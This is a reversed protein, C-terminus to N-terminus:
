HQWQKNYHKNDHDDYRCCCFPLINVVVCYIRIRATTFCHDSDHNDHNNPHYYTLTVLTMTTTMNKQEWQVAVILLWHVALILLFWCVDVILSCCYEVVLSCCRDSIMFLLRCVFLLLWYSVFLFLCVFITLLVICLCSHVFGCYVYLFSCFLLLCVLTFFCCVVLCM